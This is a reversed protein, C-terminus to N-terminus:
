YALRSEHHFSSDALVEQTLWSSHVPTDYFAYSAFEM